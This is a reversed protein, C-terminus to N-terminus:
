NKIVYPKDFKGIQINVYFNPVSGYDGDYVLEKQDQSIIEYIGNLLKCKEPQDSYHSDIHYHNVQEYDREVGDMLDEPGQMISVNLSSCHQRTISFKYKPFKKKLANRKEKVEETSIYPM